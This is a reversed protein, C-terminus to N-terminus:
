RSNKLEAVEQEYKERSRKAEDSINRLLMMREAYTTDLVENYSTNIYKSILYCERVLEEYIKPGTPNGEEDYLPTLFNQNSVFRHSSITGAHAASSM